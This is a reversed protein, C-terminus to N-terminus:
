ENSETSVKIMNRLDQSEIDIPMLKISDLSNNSDYNEPPLIKYIAKIDLQDSITKTKMNMCATFAIVLIASMLILGKIKM